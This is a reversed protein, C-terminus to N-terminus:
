KLIKVILNVEEESKKETNQEVSLWAKVYTKTLCSDLWAMRKIKLRKFMKNVKEDRFM